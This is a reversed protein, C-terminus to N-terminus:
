EGNLQWRARAQRTAPFAGGFLSGGRRALMLAIRSAPPHGQNALESLEAFARSWHGSELLEIAQDFRPAPTDIQVARASDQSAANAPRAHPFAAFGNNLKESILNSM